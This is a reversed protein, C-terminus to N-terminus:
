ELLLRCVLNLHSQLESTHEESRGRSTSRIKRPSMYSLNRLVSCAHSGDLPLDTSSMPHPEPCYTVASASRPARSTTPNSKAAFISRIAVSLARRAPTASLHRKM